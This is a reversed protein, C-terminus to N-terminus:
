TLNGGLDDLDNTQPDAAGNGFVSALNNGTLLQEAAVAPAPKSGQTNRLYGNSKKSSVRKTLGFGLRRSVDFFEFNLNRSESRDATACKRLSGLLM